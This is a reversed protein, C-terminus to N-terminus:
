AGLGGLDISRRERILDYILDTLAALGSRDASLVQEALKQHSSRARVVGRQVAGPLNGRMAQERNNSSVQARVLDSEQAIAAIHNVFAAQDRLAAEGENAGYLDQDDLRSRVASGM